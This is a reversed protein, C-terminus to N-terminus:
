RLFITSTASRLLKNTASDYYKTSIVAKITRNIPVPDPPPPPTITGTVEAWTMGETVTVTQGTTSDPMWRSYNTRYIKAPGPLTYTGTTGNASGKWLKYLNGKRTVWVGTDGGNKVIESFWPANREIYLEQALAYAAPYPVYAGWYDQGSPLKYVTDKFLSMSNFPPTGDQFFAYYYMRDIFRVSQVVAKLRLAFDAAVQRDTKNGIPDVDYESVDDTSYGFETWQVPKGFHRNFFDQLSTMTERIRFAEPSVGRTGAQQRGADNLYMNFNFGDAPFPALGAEIFHCFYVAKWYITDIGPLAGAYIKATPDVAKGANYVAKMAKYYQLPSHYYDGKWWGNPENDWEFIDMQGQGTTTDGDIANVKAKSRGYLAILSRYNNALGAWASDTNPNAGPDIYKPTTTLAGGLWKNNQSADAISMGKISPGTKAMMPQLGWRRLSNLLNGSHNFGFRGLYIPSEKLPKTYTDPYYDFEFGSWYFRVSKAVKQIVTDGQWEKWIHSGITNVGHAFAGRDQPVYNFRAPYISPARSIGTGIVQVEFIGEWFISLNVSSFQIYRVGTRVAPITTWTQYKGVTSTNVFEGIQQFRNDLFRVTFGPTQSSNGTFYRLETINSISDLVLYSEYPIAQAENVGNKNITTSLDGDFLRSLDKQSSGNLNIVDGKLQAGAAFSILLALLVIYYKM